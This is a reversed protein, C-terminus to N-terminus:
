QGGSGPDLEAAIALLIARENLAPDEVVRDLLSAIIEGVRPGPDLGLHEMVDRGGVALDTRDIVSGKKLEAGVRGRLEEALPVLFDSRGQTRVDAIALDIVDHVHEKGVRAIFRRVAADTWEPSYIVMHHRVLLAVREVDAGKFHLNRLWAAVKQEGIQEHRYFHMGEGERPESTEPKAADHLLGALRLLPDCPPCADMCGLSHTWVDHDHRGGQVCGVTKELGPFLLELYSAEELMQWGRSPTRAEMMKLIEDRKREASVKEFVDRTARMADILGAAPEVELVATFRAARMPRLGDERFRQVADGVAELARRGIADRGGHPDILTGDRPDVAMANMTFDRRALDAEIDDLYTVEDPHRGDSYSSEGRFTTVEYEANELIVTVTGHKVGTPATREFLATVEDPRASTAVDWDLEGPRGLLLDRVAGGVIYVAHGADALARCLDLVEDPVREFLDRPLSSRDQTVPDHV